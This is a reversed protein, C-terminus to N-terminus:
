ALHGAWYIEHRFVDRLDVEKEFIGYVASGSGSMGAFVAGSDYLKQRLVGVAPFREVIPEEFDNSVRDRWESVPHKQLVTRLDTEGPRPVIGAFAEATSVSVDPKVIVLFRGKLSVSTDSLVEGRGEGILPKNRIFFACDSGLRAAYDMLKTESLNLAFLENLTILVHAADSSGGGLGAGIPLIKLLYIAVPGIPFESRLLEYARVCLNDAPAAPITVGSVSFSFEDAPVIELVDFWPVPYFCTILDHYGDARKGLINLGLNIKCGPFSVM